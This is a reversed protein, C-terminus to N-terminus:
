APEWLLGGPRISPFFDSRRTTETKGRIKPFRCPRPQTPVPEERSIEAFAASAHCHGRKLTGGPRIRNRLFPAGSLHPFLRDACPSVLVASPRRLGAIGEVQSFLLGKGRYRPLPQLKDGPFSPTLPKGRRM